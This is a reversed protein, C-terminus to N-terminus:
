QIIIDTIYVARIDGQKLLGAVTTHLDKKVQNRGSVDMLMDPGKASLVSLMLDRIVPTIKKTEEMAKPDKVELAVSVKAFRANSGSLNFVFPELALIPGVTAKPKVAPAGPKHFYYAILKQGYFFYGAGGLLVAALCGILLVRLLGRKKKAPPAQVQEQVPQEDAM